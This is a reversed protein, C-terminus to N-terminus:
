IRCTGGFDFYQAGAAHSLDDILQLWPEPRDCALLDADAEALGALQSIQQIGPALYPQERAVIARSKPGPLATSVKAFQRTM